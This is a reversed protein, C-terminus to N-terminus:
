EVYQSGRPENPLSEAEDEDDAELEEESSEMLELRM